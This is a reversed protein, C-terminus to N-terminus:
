VRLMVPLEAKSLRADVRSALMEVHIQMDEHEGQGSAVLQGM